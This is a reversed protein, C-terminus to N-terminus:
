QPLQPTDIDEAELEGPMYKLEVAVDRKFKSEQMTEYRKKVAQYFAVSQSLGCIESFSEGLYALEEESAENLIFDIAGIMDACIIKQENVRCKDIGDDWNCNEEEIRIHERLVERLKEIDM